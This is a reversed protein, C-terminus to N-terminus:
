FNIGGDSIYKYKVTCYINGDGADVAIETFEIIAFTRDPLMLAIVRGTEINIFSQSDLNYGSLPASDIDEISNVGLDQAIVGQKLFIINTEVYFDMNNCNPPCDGVVKVVEATNFIFGDNDNWARSTLTVTGQSVSSTNRLGGLKQADFIAEYIDIKQDENVDAEIQVNNGDPNGTVVKLALIVDELNIEGDGNIDGKQVIVVGTGSLQVEVTPTDPDNSPISLVASKEGASSPNFTIKIIKEVSKEISQNSAEDSIITFEDANEGSLSATGITLTAGLNVVIVSYSDSSEDVFIEGFDLSSQGVYINPDGPLTTFQVNKGYATGVENSAYARAYYTTDPELDTLSASFQGTTGAVVKKDNTFDPNTNLSYVVGRQTIDGNGDSTVEGSVVSSNEGLDTVSGTIVVPLTTPIPLTTFTKEIGYATGIENVAYARVYYKTDPALQSLTGDFEGTLGTVIKKNDNVSAEPNLSYAIGRETIEAFGDSTVDGSVVAGDIDVSTIDGTVVEPIQKEPALTQFSIENGYATGQGNVAYARAYYVSGPVLNQENALSASFQGTTGAVAVKSDDLDPETHLAFVVGRETIPDGNDQVVEGTVTANTRTIDTVTNNTTVLPITAGETVIINIYEFDTRSSDTVKFLVDEYTGQDGSQPTWRFTKTEPTFTASGPLNDASYELNDGDNDTASIQFTLEQEEPINKDGISTLVPPQNISNVTITISESDSLVGDNVQFGIGSFAGVQDQGPNWAFTRTGPDFEAGPPLNTASYILEDENDPDTAFITFGYDIGQDIVRDGIPTLVPATSFDAGTIKLTYASASYDKDENNVSEHNVNVYYFGPEPVDLTILDEGGVGANTNVWDGKGSKEANYLRLRPRLDDPVDLLSLSLTGPTRVYVRYWDHDEHDFLYGEVTEQGLYTATGYNNNPENPDVVPTHDVRITYNDTSFEADNDDALKIYYFGQKNVTMTLINDDGPNTAIRDGIQSKNFNYIWMESTVTAPINTHSIELIGPSNVYVRYWDYDGEPNINGTIDSGASILTAEGFNGNPEIETNQPNDAPLTVDGTITLTYPETYSSNNLDRVRVYYFGTEEATYDLYVADGNNNAENRYWTYDGHRNYLQIYPRMTEPVGTVSMSLLSDKNAYIRYYDNDGSPFIYADVADTDAPMPTSEGFAPNNEYSDQVPIFNYTFTYPQTYGNGSKDTIRIYYIGPTVIDSNLFVDEGPNLSNNRVWMYDLDSNYLEIYGQLKDPLNTLSLNLRGPETINVRYYDVDSSHSIFANNIVSDPVIVAATSKSDNPEYFDLAPTFGFRVGYTDSYSSNANDSIKAYYWGPQAFFTCVVMDQNNNASNRVWMYDHNEDYFEIYTKMNEPVADVLASVFGRKELYIKYFDDDSDPQITGTIWRNWPVPNSTAIENNYEAEKLIQDTIYLNQSVKGSWNGQDDQVRFSIRHDGKTLTNISLESTYGLIGDRSSSWEYATISGNEDSGSGILTVSSNQVAPNPFFSNISAMPYYETFAGGQITLTYPHTSINDNGSDLIRVYYLDPNEINYELLLCDGRNKATKSSLRNKSDNYLEIVPEFGHTDAMQITIIGATDVSFAFWEEDNNPYILGSVQNQNELLAADSFTNNPEKLDEFPSFLTKLSYESLSFASNDAFIYVYYMGPEDVMLTTLIPDGTNTAVKHLKQDYNQDYVKIGMQMNEPVQQIDFEIIGSQTVEYVFWDQDNSPFISAQIQSGLSAPYSQYYDNNPEFSDTAPTFDLDLSYRQGSQSNDLDHIRVYWKGAEPINYTLVSVEGSNETDRHSVDSKDGNYVHISPRVSDPVNLTITLIGPETVQFNYWDYDNSGALSGTVPDFGVLNAANFDSNPESEITVPQDVPPSALNAGSISLRYAGDATYTSDDGNVKLFYFDSAPIVYTLEVDDGANASSANEWLYSANSNYLRLGLKLDSPLNDGMIVVTADKEAYFCYWDEDGGPFVYAEVPTTELKTSHSFDNDPEFPDPAPTFETTLTYPESANYHSANDSIKVWYTGAASLDYSLFVDEGDNNANARIWTYAINQDYTEIYGRLNSPMDTLSMSLTGPTNVTIKYWDEDNKPYIYAQLVGDANISSSHWADFNPEYPDPAPTFTVSFTYASGTTGNSDSIKLYYDGSSVVHYELTVPDGPNSANTRVWTYDTNKDYIELYTKMESGEPNDASIVLIGPGPVHMMFYDKDNQPIIECAYQTAFEIPNAEGIINNPESEQPAPLGFYLRTKTEKSWNGDNDKVKFYIDHAGITLSSVSLSASAGIKGDISSRWSYEVISGDFDEGHGTMVVADSEQAPNPLISDIQAVPTYITFVAGNITLSYPITSSSDNGIDSIEIFYYNTQSIEQSLTLEQGNNTATKSTLRDYNIDYIDIRPRITLPVDTMAVKLTSGAQSEVRYWDHDGDKFILASISNSSNLYTADGFRDNPEYNDVAFTFSVNLSYPTTSTSGDPGDLKIRYTGPNTIQVDLVLDDGPNTAERYAMQDGINNYVRMRGRVAMNTLSAKLICPSPVDIKFWDPENSIGITGAVPSDPAILNARSIENNEEAENTVPTDSPLYGFVANEVTMTYKQTWNYDGDKDRIRIYVYGSEDFLHSLSVLDGDNDPHNRVWMYSGNRDYLEIYPTLNDPTATINVNLTNGQEVWVKYYDYDDPNGPFIYAEVTGTELLHAELMSNNNEYPDIVKQHELNLTYTFESDFDNDKDSIRLFYFGPEAVDFELIVDDGDSAASNRVWLYDYHRNYLELYLRLGSPANTASMTIHGPDSIYFKFLDKDGAENIKATVPRDVAIEDAFGIPTNPETEDSVSSGVYVVESVKTSWIGDSDQVKFYITHTGISLSTTNFSASSSLQGDISSQWSYGTISGDADDGSGTFNITDGVIISGPNITDIRATPAFSTFQAGFITLTYPSTSENGSNGGIKILYSGAQSIPHVLELDTGSVGTKGAIRSKSLDYLDISPQINPPLNNLIVKFDGPQQVNVKYWDPDGNSFIYADIRNQDNLLQADGYDNNPEFIDDVVTLSTSINYSQTSVADNDLDYLEIFYIGPATINYFLDVLAGPDSSQGSLIRSKSHNYLRIVPQITGPVQDLAIKLKGTQNIEIKYWDSDDAPSVTGSVTTGLDILNSTRLENNSETEATTSTEQPQSGPSGGSVSLTYPDTMSKGQHDRIRIYYVGDQEVTHELNLLDGPNEAHDRVWMYDMNSNYLELYSTMSFPSTTTMDLVDDKKAYISFFDKDNKDFITGTVDNGDLAVAEGIENNPENPDDVSIFEIEFNYQQDSADRDIDELKIFYIGPDIIDSILFVNDGDNIASNRQWMYDAHRNYLHLKMRLNSPPNVVSCTIRGPTSLSVKYFDVDGATGITGTFTEGINVSNSLGLLNNPESETGAFVSSVIGSILIISLFIIISFNSVYSNKKMIHEM